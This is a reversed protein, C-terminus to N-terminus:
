GSVTVNYIAITVNLNKGKPPNIVIWDQSKKWKKITGNLAYELSNLWLETIQTNNWGFNSAKIINIRIKIYNVSTNHILITKNNKFILMKQGSFSINSKLSKLNILSIYINNGERFIRPYILLRNGNRISNSLAPYVTNGYAELIVGNDLILGKGNNSLYIISGYPYSRNFPKGSKDIYISLIGWDPIVAISGGEARVSVSKEPTINYAVLREVNQLVYFTNEMSRFVAIDEQSRIAPMGAAYIVTITAVVISLVLLYGLVESVAKSKLESVGM